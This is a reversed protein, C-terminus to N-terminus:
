SYLSPTPGDDLSPPPPPAPEAGELDAVAYPPRFVWNAATGGMALYYSIISIFHVFCTPM